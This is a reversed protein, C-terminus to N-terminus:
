CQRNEQNTTKQTEKIKYIYIYIYIYVRQRLYQRSGSAYHLGTLYLHLCVFAIILLLKRKNVNLAKYNWASTTRKNASRYSVLDLTFNPM